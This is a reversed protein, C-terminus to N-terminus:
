DPLLECGLTQSGDPHCARRGGGPGGGTERHFIRTPARAGSCRRLRGPDGVTRGLHEDAPMGNIEALTANIALYRLEADLICLGVTSSSFYAALLKESDTVAELHAFPIRDGAGFNEPDSPM